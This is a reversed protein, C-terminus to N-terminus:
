IKQVSRCEERTNKQRDNCGRYSVIDGEMPGTAVLTVPVTCRQLLETGEALETSGAVLLPHRTLM